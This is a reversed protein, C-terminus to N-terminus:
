YEIFDIVLVLGIVSDISPSFVLISPLFQPIVVLLSCSFIYKGKFVDKKAGTFHPLYFRNPHAIKQEGVDIQTRAPTDVNLQM